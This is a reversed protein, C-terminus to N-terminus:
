EDDGENKSKKIRVYVNYIIDLFPYLVAILLAYSALPPLDESSFYALFESFWSTFSDLAGSIYLFGGTASLILVVAAILELIDRLIQIEEKNNKLKRRIDM